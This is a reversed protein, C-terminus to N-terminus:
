VPTRSFPAILENFLANQMTSISLYRKAIKERLVALGERRIGTPLNLIDRPTELRAFLNEREKDAVVDHGSKEPIGVAEPRISSVPAPRKRVEPEMEKLGEDIVKSNEQRNFQHFKEQMELM